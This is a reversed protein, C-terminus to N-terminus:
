AECMLAVRSFMFCVDVVLCFGVVLLFGTGGGM